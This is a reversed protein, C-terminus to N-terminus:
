SSDLDQVLHYAHELTSIDRVFLERRFDERLESRFKSLVVADSMRAVGLWFSM